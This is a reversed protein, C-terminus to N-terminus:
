TSSKARFWLRTVRSSTACRRRVIRSSSAVTAVRRLWTVSALSRVCSAFGEFADTDLAAGLRAAALFAEPEELFLEFFDAYVGRAVGPVRAHCNGM